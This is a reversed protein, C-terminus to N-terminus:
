GWGLELGLGIEMTEGRVGFSGRNESEELWRFGICTTLQSWGREYIDEVM